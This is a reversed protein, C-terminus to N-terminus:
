HEQERGRRGSGEIADSPCCHDLANGGYRKLPDLGAGDVHLYLDRGAQGSERDDAEGVLRHRFGALPDARGQDGGPSASGARRM